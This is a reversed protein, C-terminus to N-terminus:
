YPVDMAAKRQTKTLIVSLGVFDTTPVPVGMRLDTPTEGCPQNLYGKILMWLPGCDGDMFRAFFCLQM